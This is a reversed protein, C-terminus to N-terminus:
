SELDILTDDGLAKLETALATHLPNQGLFRGIFDPITMLSHEVQGRALDTDPGLIDYVSWEEAHKDGGLEEVRHLVKSLGVISVTLVKREV